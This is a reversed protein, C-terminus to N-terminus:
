KLYMEPVNTIIDTVGYAKFRDFHTDKLIRSDNYFPEDMNWGRITIGNMNDPLTCDLAGIYPHLADAGTSEAMKICEELSVALMGIECEPAIRKMIAVTEPLFSSYVIYKEMFNDKVLKHTAEEIGEYRIVSTKLEINILLGNNKCYPKLCSLVEQLTPIKIGDECVNLQKLEELTYECVNKNGQTVRSVNEDHFVVLQKDKTFQVDLEIGTIGSIKAAAEFAELTNEPYKMSCGRHAWVAPKKMKKANDTFKDNIKQWEPTNWQLFKEMIDSMAISEDQTIGIQSYEFKSDEVTNEYNTNSDDHNNEDINNKIDSKKVLIDYLFIALEYKLGSGEYPYNYEEIRSSDEYRVVFKKTMWWPSKALIYGKTGSILLQGESKVGLGTKITAMGQPFTLEAKTYIDTGNVARVAKFNVDKYDTGMLKVVPLLGYSGFELMSGNYVPTEYERTNIFTLRTFAAEVDVIKGIRGSQAINLLENFGPCYATKVAEKLILNKEKAINFLEVAEDKKLAMPKECLVHIGNILMYRTYEYHTEHPSAIYVAEVLQTLEDLRDTYVDVNYKYAFNRASDIHPNYICTVEIDLGQLATSIFRDAIRGTGIIGIRM